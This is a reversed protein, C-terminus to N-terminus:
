HPSLPWGYVCISTTCAPCVRASHEPLSRSDKRPQEMVPPGRTCHSCIDRSVQQIRIDRAQLERPNAAVALEAELRAVERQLRKILVKDSVVQVLLCLVPHRFWHYVLRVRGIRGLFVLTLSDSRFVIAQNTIVSLRTSPHHYCAHKGPQRARQQHGGQGAHCLLAHKPDAGCPRTCPEHHLHHSHACQGGSLAASHADAQLGPVPHSRATAQQEGQLGLSLAPQPSAVHSLVLCLPSCYIEEPVM